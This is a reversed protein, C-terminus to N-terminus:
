PPALKAWPDAMTPGQDRRMDSAVIVMGLGSLERGLGAHLEADIPIAAVM